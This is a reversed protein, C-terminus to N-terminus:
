RGFTLTADPSSLLLKGDGAAITTVGQLVSTYDTDLPASFCYAKTCALLSVAISADESAFSGNCVNCDAQVHLRDDNAFFATFADPNEITVSTGDANALSELKWTVDEFAVPDPGTLSTGCASAAIALTAVSRLSVRAPSLSM